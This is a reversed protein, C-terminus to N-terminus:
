GSKKGWVAALEVLGAGMREDAKGRQFDTTPRRGGHTQKVKGAKTGLGPAKNCPRYYRSIYAAGKM